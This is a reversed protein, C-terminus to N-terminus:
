NTGMWTVQEEFPVFHLHEEGTSNLSREAFNWGPMLKSVTRTKGRALSCIRRCEAGACSGGSCWRNNWATQQFFLNRAAAEEMRVVISAIENLSFNSAAPAAKKRLRRHNWCEEELASIRVTRLGIWTATLGLAAELAIRREFRTLRSFSRWTGDDIEVRSGSYLRGHNNSALCVRSPLVVVRSSCRRRAECKM